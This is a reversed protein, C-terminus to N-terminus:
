DEKVSEPLSPTCCYNGGWISNSMAKAWLESMEKSKAKQEEEYKISMLKSDLIRYENYTIDKPEKSIIYEIVDDIKSNIKDKQSLSAATKKTRM